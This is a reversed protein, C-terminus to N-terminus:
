SLKNLLGKRKQCGGCTKLSTGLVADIMGAVPQAIRAVRDGLGVFGWPRNIPCSYDQQKIDSFRKQIGERWKIGRDTQERCIKCHVFSKCHNSTYFTM